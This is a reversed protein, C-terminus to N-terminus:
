VSVGRHVSHSISRFINGTFVVGGHLDIDCYFNSGWTDTHVSGNTAMIYCISGMAQTLFFDVNDYDSDCPGHSHVKIGSVVVNMTNQILVSSLDAFM